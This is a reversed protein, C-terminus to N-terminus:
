RKLVESVAQLLEEGKFPKALVQNAGLKQAMALYDEPTNRGGGSIALIPLRSDMERLEIITELGEQEPMILDLIVLDPPQSFCEHVAQAGNRAEDVRYGARQLVLVAVRRFADDDDVLLITPM